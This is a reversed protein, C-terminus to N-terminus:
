TFTRRAAGACWSAAEAGHHATPPDLLSRRAACVRANATRRTLLREPLYAFCAEQTKLAHGQAGRRRDVVAGRRQPPSHTPGSPKQSGRVGPRQGHAAHAAERAVSTPRWFSQILAAGWSAHVARGCASCRSHGKSIAQRRTAPWIQFNPPTQSPGRLASVPGKQFAEGGHPCIVDGENRQSDPSFYAQM